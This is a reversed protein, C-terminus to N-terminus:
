YFYLLKIVRYVRYIMLLRIRYLRIQHKDGKIITQQKLRKKKRKIRIIKNYERLVQHKNRKIIMINLQHRSYCKLFLLLLSIYLVVMKGEHM